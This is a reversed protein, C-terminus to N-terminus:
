AIQQAESLKELRLFGQPQANRLFYLGPLQCVSLKVRQQASSAYAEFVFVEVHNKTLHGGDPPVEAGALRVIVDVVEHERVAVCGASGDRVRAHREDMLLAPSPWAVRVVAVAPQHLHTEGRVKRAKLAFAAGWLACTPHSKRM